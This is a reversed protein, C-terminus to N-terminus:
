LVKSTSLDSHTPDAIVLKLKGGPTRALESRREVRVQPDEVGLQVLQKAIARSLRTELGDDSPEQPPSSPHRRVVLVRLLLGDQIVQFERVEPDRTLLAFQLPHVAVRGGDRASLSLVDDSRGSITKMRALMRGCSCPDPDLTVMDTVELRLLPQVMNYLNTVLLRAGPQGPPVPQGDADVNEVLTTDEFLHIGQHHECELGFLGETSGYLNFPRVGFADQLRQTMEATRLEAVTVLIRPSIRLRGARQEDVLWMAASPYAQLYTPQFENLAEVLRPLPLTVPLALVRHLGSAMIAGQRSIHSPDAAGVFAMRQRPLTPRLGEWTTSRLMGAFISRWGAADYVYLGPRGSSGSTLMVRYRNLYLQDRSMRGVWDLLEDRRLRPDCVLDDFHEMLLPKDLVPLRSLQVPSDGLAGTEAFQRRYFPSHAAAHRVVVELRQQQHRGLEARPGHEHSMQARALRLAATVDALRRRQYRIQTTNM